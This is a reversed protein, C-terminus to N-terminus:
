RSRLGGLRIATMSVKLFVWILFVQRLFALINEMSNRHIYIAIISIALLVFARDVVGARYLTKTLAVLSLGYVLGFFIVGAFGAVSYGQALFNFAIGYTLHSYFESTFAVNFNGSDIGFASPLVLFQGLSGVILDSLPYEFGTRVVVELQNFVVLPEFYSLQSAFSRGFLSNELPALSLQKIAVYLPKGLVVVVFGFSVIVWHRFKFMALSFRRGSFQLMVLAGMLIAIATRDGSVFYMFIFLSSVFIGDRRNALLSLILMAANVWRWLVKIEANSESLSRNDSMFFLFGDTLGIYAYMCVSVLLIMNVALRGNRRGYPGVVNLPVMGVARPRFVVAAFVFALWFIIVVITAPTSTSQAIVGSEVPALYFGVLAPLSYASLGVVGLMLPSLVGYLKAVLVGSAIVTAVLAFLAFSM